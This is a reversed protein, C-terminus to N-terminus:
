SVGIVTYADEEIDFGTGTRTDGKYCTQYLIIVIGKLAKNMVLGVLGEM